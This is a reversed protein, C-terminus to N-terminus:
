VNTKYRLKENNQVGKGRFLAGYCKTVVGGEQNAFFYYLLNIYNSYKQKCFTDSTNKSIFSAINIFVHKLILIIKM